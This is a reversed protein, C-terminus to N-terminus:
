LKIDGRPKGRTKELYVDRVQSPLPTGVWNQVKDSLKVTTAVPQGEKMTVLDSLKRGAKIEKEVAAGLEMMFAMEGELIEKGGAPGHGPL